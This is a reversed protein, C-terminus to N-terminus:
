DDDDKGSRDGGQINDEDASKHCRVCDNFNTIGEERHESAINALTHEHCGYCTYAEYNNNQHCVVCDTNHDNDLVFYSSHEFTAPKWKTVSHCLLCNDVIKSHLRDNPKKHCTVCNQSQDKNIMDHNFNEVSQWNEYNHCNGCSISLASHLADEQKAHCGLCNQVLSSELLTHEFTLPEKPNLGQHDHHCATCNQQTLLKHFKISQSFLVDISDKQSGIEEINHCAICKSNPVGQFPTHCSFCDNNFKQHGNTLEGPSILTHPFKVILLAIAVTIIVGFVLLKNM